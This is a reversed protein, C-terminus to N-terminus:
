ARNVIRLIPAAREAAPQVAPQLDDSRLIRPVLTFYQMIPQLLPMRALRGLIRFRLGPIVIVQRRSMKRLSFAVLEDPSMWLNAAPRRQPFAQM